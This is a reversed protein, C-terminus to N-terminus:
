ATVQIQQPILEWLVKGCYTREQQSRAADQSGEYIYQSYGLIPSDEEVDWEGLM